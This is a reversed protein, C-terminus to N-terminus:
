CDVGMAAASGQLRACTHGKERAGMAAAGAWQRVRTYGISTRLM